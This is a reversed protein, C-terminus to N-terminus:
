RARVSGALRGGLTIWSLGIGILGCATMGAVMPLPSDSAFRSMVAMAVAGTLIQVTGLLASATGAIRGHQELALVGTTPIVVGMFASALAYLGILVWLRDGIAVDYTLLILMVAGCAHVCVKIVQEIGFRECLEGNLQAALFFSAANFGFAVGYQAPSLGYHNILVFPSNALFIFFIAFACSGILVLGLYRGNRLLLVYSRLSTGFGGGIRADHTRSESLMTSALLLGVLAAAAVIWFVGRWSLHAVVVSGVLPALIPSIGFVLMLMSILRTADNGTHLDRVVARPIVMGAAAGLGQVSRLAVLTEISTALACGISAVVFLALGFYLPPKRGVADSVPGFILQGVGMSVFFATLSLQTTSIDAGLSRSIVPLAPLYMDIAFPGIASLLGLILAVRFFRSYM